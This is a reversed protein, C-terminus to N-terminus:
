FTLQQRWGETKLNTISVCMTKYGVWLRQGDHTEHNGSAVGASMQEIDLEHVAGLVRVELTGAAAEREPSGVRVDHRVSAFLADVLRHIRQPRKFLGDHPVLTTPQPLFLQLLEVPLFRLPQQLRLLRPLRSLRLVLHRAPEDDLSPTRQIAAIGSQTKCNFKIM